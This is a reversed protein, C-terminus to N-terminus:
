TADVLRKGAIIAELRPYNASLYKNYVCVDSNVVRNNIYIAMAPTM